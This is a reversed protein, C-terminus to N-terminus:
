GRGRADGRREIARMRATRQGRSRKFVCYAIRLVHDWEFSLEWYAIRLVCYAIRLVYDWEFSLEWYAIRLVCYAVVGM